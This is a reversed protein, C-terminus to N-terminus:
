FFPTNQGVQHFVNTNGGWSNTSKNQNTCGWGNNKSIGSNNNGGWNKNTQSNTECTGRGFLPKNSCATSTYNNRVECSSSNSTRWNDNSGSCKDSSSRHNGDSKLSPKQHSKKKEDEIFINLKDVNDKSFVKEIYKKMAFHLSDHEAKKSIHSKIGQAGNFSYTKSLSTM